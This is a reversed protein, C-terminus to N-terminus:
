SLVPAGCPEEAQREMPLRSRNNRAAEAGDDHEILRGQDAQAIEIRFTPVMSPRVDGADEVLLTAADVRDRYARNRIGAQRIWLDAVARAKMVGATTPECAELIGRATDIMAEASVRLAESYLAAQPGRQNCLWGALGSQPVGLMRAIRSQPHGQVILDVVAPLGFLKAPKEHPRYRVLPTTSLWGTL